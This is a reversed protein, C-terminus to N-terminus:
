CRCVEGWLVPERCCGFGSPPPPASRFLVVNDRSGISGYKDFDIDTGWLSFTVSLIPQCATIVEKALNTQLVPSNMFNEVKGKQSSTTNATNPPLFIALELPADPFPSNNPRTEIRFIKVIQLNRNIKAKVSEIAQHCSTDLSPLAQAVLGPSRLSFTERSYAPTVSTILITGAVILNISKAISKM